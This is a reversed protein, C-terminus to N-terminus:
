KRVAADEIDQLAACCCCGDLSRYQASACVIEFDEARPAAVNDGRRRFVYKLDGPGVRRTLEVRTNREPLPTRRRRQILNKGDSTRQQKRKRQRKKAGGPGEKYLPGKGAKLEKSGEEQGRQEYHRGGSERRKKKGRVM